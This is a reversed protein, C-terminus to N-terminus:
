ALMTGLLLELFSDEAGPIPSCPVMMHSDVDVLSSNEHSLIVVPLNSGIRSGICLFQNKNELTRIPLLTSFRVGVRAKSAEETHTKSNKFGESISFSSPDIVISSEDLSVNKLIVRKESNLRDNLRKNPIIRPILTKQRELVLEHETTWLLNDMMGVSDMAVLRLLATALIHSDLRDKGSTEVDLFQLRVHPSELLVSRGVGLLMNSYPNESRTGHTIWLVNKAQSFISQMGRISAESVSEFFPEDLESLCIVTSGPILTGREIEAITSVLIPNSNWGQLLETLDEVLRAVPLTSGGIIAFQNVRPVSDLLLMPHRLLQVRSDMAQSVMISTLYKTKHHFDNSVSDVGSFGAGGLVKNWENPNLTPHFKRGDDQDLWWGPLGSM